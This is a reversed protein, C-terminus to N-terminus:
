NPQTISNLLTNLRKMVEKPTIINIDLSSGKSYKRSLEKFSKNKIQRPYIHHVKKSIKKPYPHFKGFHNGNSICLTPTDIAAAIHVAGTDNSILLNSNGIVNISNQLTNGILNEIKKPYNSKHIIKEAIESDKKSGLIKIKLKKRQIIFDAIEAFNKASWRRFKAGAGPVIVAYKEKHNKKEFPISLNTFLNKNLFVEFFEKNKIFEFTIEKKSQILQTYYSDTLLKQWSYMGKPGGSNGIKNISNSIKVISDVSFSRGYSPRLIIEFSKDSISKLINFRYFPNILFNKRSVWIFKDIYKRDSNESINKWLPNGCLTISYNKYKSDKKIEEIFNRFLIYDGIEGLFILLIKKNKKAPNKKKIIKDILLYLPTLAGSILKEKNISM